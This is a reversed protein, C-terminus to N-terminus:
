PMGPFAGSIEGDARPASRARELLRTVEDDSTRVFDAYWLGVKRFPERMSVCVVANALGALSACAEASGVPAAAVIGAPGRRRLASVAARMTAGTALGDDVLIATRGAIPEPAAGGRYLRECRELADEEREAAAEVQAPAIGLGEVVEPDLVLVGGSAVAGMALEEYGPVGLRRVVFVDLPAGLVEAAESAVPMGGRPLGLVVVDPRNAYSAALEEGLRRGAEIRDRFM